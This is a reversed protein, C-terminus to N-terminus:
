VVGEARWNFTAAVSTIASIPVFTFGTKTTDLVIGSLSGNGLAPTLTISTAEPATQFPVPFTVSVPPGLFLSGYASWGTTASAPSVGHQTDHAFTVTPSSIISVPNPLNAYANAGIKGRVCSTIHIASSGQGGNGKILNSGVFFDTVSNLSICANSGVAGMNIQNSAINVVSLFNSADTAIAIGGVSFENSSICVNVFATGPVAQALVVDQQVMNEFSNGVINLVSTSGELAMTYGRAGGLFKNGIIKLGGSSKQWIGSGIPYPTSFMCGVIASDGSDPENTNAVQIGAITYSLFDCGMVKWLSAAVFDIGIPVFVLAVNHFNAYHNEGTPPRIAIAAGGSKALQSGSLAGQIQVDKFVLQNGLGGPSDGVFTFLDGTSTDTSRLITQGPGDGIIGGSRIGVPLRSFVYTGAPYYVPKGTAHAAAMADTDDNNGNGLAGFAKVNVRTANDFSRADFVHANVENLWESAIVTGAQFTTTPM